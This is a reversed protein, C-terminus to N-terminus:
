KVLKWCVLSRCANYGHVLSLWMDLKLLVLSILIVAVPVLIQFIKHIPANRSDIDPLNSGLIIMIVAFLSLAFVDHGTPIIGRSYAFVLLLVVGLSAIIGANVHEKMYPM